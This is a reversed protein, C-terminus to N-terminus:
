SHARTMQHSIEHFYMSLFGLLATLFLGLIAVTLANRESTHREFWAVISNAPPPHDVIRLLTALREGLYKYEFEDPLTRIHREFYTAKPDFGYKDTFKELSKFSRGDNPFLLYQISDLVELLLQPPLTGRHFILEPFSL